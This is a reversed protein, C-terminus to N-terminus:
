DRMLYAEVDDLTASYPFPEGGCVVGNLRVDVLMYGNFDIARTDRRRSKELRLGQRAAMRRLRNERV